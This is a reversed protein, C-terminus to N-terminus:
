VLRRQTAVTESWDGGNEESRVGTEEMRRRTAVTESWDGGLQWPRM